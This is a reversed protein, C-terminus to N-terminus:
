IRGMRDLNYTNNWWNREQPICYIPLKRVSIGVTITIRTNASNMGHSLSIFFQGPFVASWLALFFSSQTRSLSFLLFLIKSNNKFKIKHTYNNTKMYALASIIPRSSMHIPTWSVLIVYSQSGSCMSPIM